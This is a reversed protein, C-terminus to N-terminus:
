IKDSKSRNCTECLIQINRATNSGGKSIPIVHDFELRGQSGCKVCRGHDRQWVFIKVDEPITQRGTDESLFETHEMHKVARTLRKERKRHRELILAKVEHTSLSEDEWYFEGLYVWYTKKTGGARMLPVPTDRQQSDLEKYEKDNWERKSELRGVRFVYYTRLIGKTKFYANTAKRFM